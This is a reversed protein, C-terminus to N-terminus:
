FLFRQRGPSVQVLHPAWTTASARAHSLITNESRNHGLSMLPSVLTVQFLRRFYLANEIQSHHCTKHVVCKRPQLLPSNESMFFLRERDPYFLPEKKIFIWIKSEFGQLHPISLSFFILSFLPRKRAFVRFVSEWCGNETSM